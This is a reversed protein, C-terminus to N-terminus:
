DVDYMDESVRTIEVVRPKYQVIVADGDTVRTPVMARAAYSRAANVAVHLAPYAAQGHWVIPCWEGHYYYLAKWQPM